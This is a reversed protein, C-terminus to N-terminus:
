YAYGWGSAPRKMSFRLKPTVVRMEALDCAMAFAIDEPSFSNGASQPDTDAFGLGHPHNHTLTADKLAAREQATFTVEYQQGDKALIENGQADWAFASEFTQFRIQEEKARAIPEVNM